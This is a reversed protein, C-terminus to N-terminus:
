TKIQRPNVLVVEFGSRELIQFAAIWYIGTAEMAVTKVACDKLWQSMQELEPTTTGFGRVNDPDREAPVCVYHDRSGIDVRAV